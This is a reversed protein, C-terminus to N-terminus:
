KGISFTPSTRVEIPLFINHDIPNPGNKELNGIPNKGNQHGIELLLSSSRGGLFRRMINKLLLVESSSFTEFTSRSIKKKGISFIWNKGEEINGIPNKGNQHGNELLFSSSRGGLFKRMINKLHLVESSSFTEFTSRAIKKKRYSFVYQDVKMRRRV